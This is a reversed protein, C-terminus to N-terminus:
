KNGRGMPSRPTETTHMNMRSREVGGHGSPYFAGTLECVCGHPDASVVALQGERAPHQGGMADM